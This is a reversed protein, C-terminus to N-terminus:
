VHNRSLRQFEFWGLTKCSGVVGLTIHRHEDFIHEYGLGIGFKSDKVTRVYHLHLGYAVVKEKLFYVPANAIGIENKHHDHYHDHENEQGM